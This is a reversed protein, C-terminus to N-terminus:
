PPTEYLKGMDMLLTGENETIMSNSPKGIKVQGYIHVKRIHLNM